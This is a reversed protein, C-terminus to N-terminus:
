VRRRGFIRKDHQRRLQRETKAFAGHAAEGLSRHNARSTLSMHKGKVHVHAAYRERERSLSVEFKTTEPFDAQLQNCISECEAALRRSHPVDGQFRIQFTM